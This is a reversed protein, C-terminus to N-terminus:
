QGFGMEDRWSPSLQMEPGESVPAAQVAPSGEHLECPYAGFPEPKTLAVTAPESPRYDFRDLVVMRPACWCYATCMVQGTRACDDFDEQYTLPAPRNVAHPSTLMLTMMLALM